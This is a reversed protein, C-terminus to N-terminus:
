VLKIIKPVIRTYNHTSICENSPTNHQFFLLKKEADWKNVIFTGTKEKKQEDIVTISFTKKDTQKLAISHRKKEILFRKVEMTPIEM